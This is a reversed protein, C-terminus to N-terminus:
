DAIQTALFEVCRESIESLSDGENINMERYVTLADEGADDSVRKVSVFPVSCLYAVGAIAAAEMDCAYAGFMDRLRDHLEANNVFMDGTVVTGMGCGLENALADYLPGIAPYIYKQAPKEGLEYGLATFDFDHEMFKNGILLEGRRVGSIGGALGINFLLDCGSEVLYMAAMAANVKGIGSHVALVSVSDNVKRTYARRKFYKLEEGGLSLARKCLPEFEDVDAIVIGIKKSM